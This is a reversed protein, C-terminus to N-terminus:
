ARCLVCVHREPRSPLSSFPSTGIQGEEYRCAQPSKHVPFPLPYSAQADQCLVSRQWPERVPWAQPPPPLAQQLLCLWGWDCINKKGEGGKHLHCGKKDKKHMFSHYPFLSPPSWPVLEWHSMLPELKCRGHINEYLAPVSIYPSHLLAPSMHSGFNMLANCCM